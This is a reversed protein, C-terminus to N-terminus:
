APVGDYDVLTNVTVWPVTDPIQPQDSVPQQELWDAIEAFSRQRLDDIATPPRDNLEYIAEYPVGLVGLASYAYTEVDDDVSLPIGLGDCVAGNGCRGNAGDTLQYRIQRATTTRLAHVARTRTEYTMM